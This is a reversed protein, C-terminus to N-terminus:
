GISMLKITSSQFLVLTVIHLLPNSLGKVILDNMTKGEMKGGFCGVNEKEQSRWIGEGTRWQVLLM